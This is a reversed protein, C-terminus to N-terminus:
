SVGAPALSKREGTRIALLSAVALLAPLAFLSLITAGRMGAGLALGILVPAVLTGVRGISKAWGIGTARLPAPYYTALLVNVGGYAGLVFFGCAALLLMLVSESATAMVQGIAYLLVASMAMFGLLTPRTGFRDILLGVVLAAIIGGFSFITVSLSAFQKDRGVEVLLTPLWSNLCYSITLLSIFLLWLLLTGIAYRRSLIDLTRLRPGAASPSADNGAPSPVERLGAWALVLTVLCAGGVAVMAARWGGHAAFGTAVLGALAAGLGYGTFLVMIALGRRAVPAAATVMALCSPLCGGLFFGTVLRWAILSAPGDALATAAQALGFGALSLLVVGRQSLRDALLPLLVLGLCQGALNASFIPGLQANGLHLSAAMDPALPGLLSHILGDFLYILACLGTLLVTPASM